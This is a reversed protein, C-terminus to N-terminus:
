YISVPSNLLDTAVDEGFQIQSFEMVQLTRPTEEMKKIIFRGLMPHEAVWIKQQAVNEHRVELLDAELNLVSDHSVKQADRPIPATLKNKLRRLSTEKSKDFIDKSETLLNEEEWKEKRSRYEITTGDSIFTEIVVTRSKDTKDTMETRTEIRFPIQVSTAASNLVKSNEFTESENNGSLDLEEFDQEVSKNTVAKLVSPFGSDFELLSNHFDHIPMFVGSHDERPILFVLSFVGKAPRDSRDRSLFELFSVRTETRREGPIVLLPIEKLSQVPSKVRNLLGNQFQVDAKPKKVLDAANVSYIFSLFIFIFLLSRVTFVCHAYLTSETLIDNKHVPTVLQIIRRGAMGTKNARFTM